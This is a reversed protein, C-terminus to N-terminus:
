RFLQDAMQQAASLSRSFSSSWHCFCSRILQLLLLPVVAAPNNIMIISLVGGIEGQLTRFYCFESHLCTAWTHTTNFLLYLLCVLSWHTAPSCVPLEDDFPTFAFLSIFYHTTHTILVGGAAAAACLVFNVRFQFNRSLIGPRSPETTWEKTWENSIYQQSSYLPFWSPLFAFLPPIFQLIRESM